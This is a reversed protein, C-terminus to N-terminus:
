MGGGAFSRDAQCLPSGAEPLRARATRSVVTQPQTKEAGEAELDRESGPEDGPDPEVQLVTVELLTIHGPQRPSATHREQNPDAVVPVLGHPPREVGSHVADDDGSDAARVLGAPDDACSVDWGLTSAARPQAPSTEAVACGLRQDQRHDLGAIPQGLDLVNEGDVPDVPDEDPRIVQGYREAHATIDQVLADNLGDLVDHLGRVVGSAQRPYERAVSGQRAEQWRDLEEADVGIGTHQLSTQSVYEALRAGRM